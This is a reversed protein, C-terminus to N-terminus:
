CSYSKLLSQHMTSTLGITKKKRWNSILNWEISAGKKSLLRSCNTKFPQLLAATHGPAQEMFSKEKYNIAFHGYIISNKCNMLLNLTLIQGYSCIRLKHIRLTKHFQGRTVSCLVLFLPKFGTM